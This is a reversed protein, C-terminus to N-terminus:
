PALSSHPGVFCVQAATASFPASGWPGCQVISGAAQTQYVSSSPRPLSPVHSLLRREAGILINQARLIRARRAKEEQHKAQPIM